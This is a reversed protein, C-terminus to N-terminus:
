LKNGNQQHNWDWPYEEEVHDYVLCQAGLLDSKLNEIVMEKNISVGREIQSKGFIFVPPSLIVTLIIWVRYQCILHISSMFMRGLWTLWIIKFKCDLMMLLMRTNDLKKHQFLKNVIKNFTLIVADKENLINNTKWKYRGQQENTMCWVMSCDIGSDWNLKIHYKYTAWYTHLYNSTEKYNNLEM